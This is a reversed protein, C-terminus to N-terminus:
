PCRVESSSSGVARIVVACGVATTVLVALFATGLLDHALGINTSFASVLFVLALGLCVAAVPEKLDPWRGVVWYVPPVLLLAQHVHAHWTFANTAAALGLWAVPEVARGGSRLDRGCVLGAAGTVVMGVVAGGMGRDSAPDTVCQTRVGALEDDFESVLEHDNRHRRFVQPPRRCVGGDVFRRRHTDARSGICMRSGARWAGAVTSQRRARSDILVLTQPKFALLGLWAGARFLHGRHFAIMAEGFFVMLWASIQGMILHILVPPSLMVAAILWGPGSVRFVRSLRVQYLLLVVLHVGTWVLFGPVPDVLTSPVFILSFPPPYPAPVIGFPLVGRGTTHVYRDYLDRQAAELLEPQFSAGLGHELIAEGATRTGRYDLAVYEFLGRERIIRAVFVAEAVGVVM